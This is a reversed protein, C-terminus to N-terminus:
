FALLRLVLLWGFLMGLLSGFLVRFSQQGGLVPLIEWGAVILLPWLPLTLKFFHFLLAVGLVSGLGGFIDHCSHAIRDRVAMKIPGRLVWQAPEQIAATAAELPTETGRRSLWVIWSVPMSAITGFISGFLVPLGIIVLMYAIFIKVPLIM